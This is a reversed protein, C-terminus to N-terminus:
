QLVCFFLYTLREVFPYENRHNTLSIVDKILKQPLIYKLFYICIEFDQNNINNINIRLGKESAPITSNIEAHQHM